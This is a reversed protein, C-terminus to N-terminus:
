KVSIEKFFYKGPETHEIIEIAGPVIKISSFDEKKIWISSKNVKFKKECTASFSHVLLDSILVDDKFIKLYMDGIHDLQKYKVGTKEFLERRASELIGGDESHIKGLPLGYYNIYPQKSRKTLLISGDIFKLLVSVTIKPQKRIKMSSGSAYEVYQLGKHSLTYGAETKTIFGFSILKNLHYSYLNSDTNKPRMQSFKAFEQFNLVQLIHKQVHHDIINQEFM